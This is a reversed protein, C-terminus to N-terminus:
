CFCRNRRFLSIPDFTGIIPISFVFLGARAWTGQPDAGSEPTPEIQQPTTCALLQVSALMGAAGVLREAPRQDDILPLKNRSAYRNRSVDIAAAPLQAIKRGPLFRIDFSLLRIPIQDLAPM